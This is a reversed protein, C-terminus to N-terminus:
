STLITRFSLLKRTKTQFEVPKLNQKQFSNLFIIKRSRERENGPLSDLKWTSHLFGLINKLAAGCDVVILEWLMQKARTLRHFPLWGDSHDVQGGQGKVSINVVHTTYCIHLIYRALFM